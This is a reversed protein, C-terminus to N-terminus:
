TAPKSNSVPTPNNHCAEHLTTNRALTFYRAAWTRPVRPKHLFFGAAQSTMNKARTKNLYKMDQTLVDRSIPQNQLRAAKCHKGTAEHVYKALAMHKSGPNAFRAPLDEFNVVPHASAKPPVRGLSFLELEPGGTTIAPQNTCNNTSEAALFFVEKAIMFVLYDFSCVEFEYQRVTRRNVDPVEQEFELARERKTYDTSKAKIRQDVMKNLNIMVIAAVSAVMESALSM